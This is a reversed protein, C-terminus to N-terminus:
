VYKSPIPLLWLPPPPYEFLAYGLPFSLAIALLVIIFVIGFKWIFKVIKANNVECEEYIKLSEPTKECGKSFSNLFFYIIQVLYQQKLMNDESIEFKKNKTM